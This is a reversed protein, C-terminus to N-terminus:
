ETRRRHFLSWEIALLTLAALALYRWFPWTAAGALTQMWRTRVRPPPAIGARLDSEAEAFMNVAIWDTRSGRREYFGQRLPRFFGSIFEGSPEAMEEEKAPRLTIAQDPALSLTEGTRLAPAVEETGGALWELTNSILLPFAVRLPLDSDTTAFSFAAIRRAPKGSIRQEGTILLPHDFSRLPSGFRWAPDQPLALAASRLVTVNQLDVQRFIPHGPELDTIMPRELEEASSSFPSKGIFLFNTAPEGLSFEPPVFQDCIVTEFKPAFAPNWAAPEILEFSVAPDAALLKELFWNGASVLLVRRTKPPPLITRALNDLPLADAATLRATLWGRATRSPRPVSSFVDLRRAGPELTFPKVELLQGDYRLEVDGTAASRGFNQLELLVESTQPSSPLPRTAFRTIALNDRPTGVAITEVSAAGAPAPVNGGPTESSATIVIVRREGHRAALLDQALSVAAALDGSADTPLIGDLSQRLLQSDSSFPARVAPAPGATILAVDRGSAAERVLDAAARRAREFRTQGDAELAQMRARTDLVIVLSSGNGALRDFAPRALAAVILVFILLHLLLSFLNRLRQFLARRRNEQLVRQWFMLTSVTSSRRKVKLMYLLVIVPVGALFWAAWPQLFMM